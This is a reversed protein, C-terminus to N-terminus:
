FFQRTGPAKYKGTANTDVRALHKPPDYAGSGKAGTLPLGGAQLFKSSGVASMSVTSLADPNNVYGKGNYPMVRSTNTVATGTNYYYTITMPATLGSVATGPSSLITFVTSSPTSFITALTQNFGTVGSISLNKTGAAFGHAASTTYYVRGTITGRTASSSGTNTSILVAFTLATPAPSAAVSANTVNVGTPGVTLGTITIVDGASLGHAVDTTYTIYTTSGVAGTIIDNRAASVTVSQTTVNTRPPTVLYAAQSALLQANLISQTPVPQHV